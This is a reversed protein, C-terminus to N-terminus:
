RDVDVCLVKSNVKNRFSIDATSPCLADSTTVSVVRGDHRESCEVFKDLDQGSTLVVCSSELDATSDSGNSADRVVLAGLVVFLGVAVWLGPRRTLPPNPDLPVAAPTGAAAAPVTPPALAALRNRAGINKFISYINTFFSIVGWWGTMLTKNTMERFIALGCSRCMPGEVRRRTRFVIKGTEQRITVNAAPSSGCMICVNPQSASPTAEPSGWADPTAPSGWAGPPPPPGPPDGPPPPPLPEDPAM